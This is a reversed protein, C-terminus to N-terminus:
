ARRLHAMRLQSNVVRSGHPSTTKAFFGWWRVVFPAARHLSYHSNVAVPPSIPSCAARLRTVTMQRILVARIGQITESGQTLDLTYGDNPACIPAIIERGADTLFIVEFPTAVQQRTMENILRVSRTFSASRVRLEEASVDIRVIQNVPLSAERALAPTRFALQYESHKPYLAFRSTEFTPTGAWIKLSADDLTSGKQILLYDPVANSDVSPYYAIINPITIMPTHLFYLVWMQPVQLCAM